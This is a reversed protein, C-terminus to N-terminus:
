TIIVVGSKVIELLVDLARRGGGRENIGVGLVIDEM